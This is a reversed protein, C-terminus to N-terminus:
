VFGECWTGKVLSSEWPDPLCLSLPIGAVAFLTLVTLVSSYVDVASM